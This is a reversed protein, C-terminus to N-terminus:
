NIRSGIYITNVLFFNIESKVNDSIEPKRSKMWSDHKPEWHVESDDDNVIHRCMAISCRFIRGSLSTLWMLIMHKNLSPLQPQELIRSLRVCIEGVGDVLSDWEFDFRFINLQQNISHRLCSDSSVVYVLLQDKHAESPFIKFKWPFIIFKQTISYGVLRVLRFTSFDQLSNKM